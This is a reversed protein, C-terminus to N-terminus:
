EGDTWRDVVRVQFPTLIVAGGGTLNCTYEIRYNGPDTFVGSGIDHRFNYGTADLTWRGDTQLANFIVNAVTLTGSTHVTDRDNENWAKFTISSFDSQIATTGNVQVRAMVSFTSDEAVCGEISDCCSM